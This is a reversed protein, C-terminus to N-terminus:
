QHALQVGFQKGGLAVTIWKPDRIRIFVEWMFIAQSTYTDAVYADDSRVAFKIEQEIGTQGGSMWNVFVVYGFSKHWECEFLLINSTLTM